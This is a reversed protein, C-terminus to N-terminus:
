DEAEMKALKDYYYLDEKLHDRAIESALKDDLTHEHEVEIGKRVQEAVVSEEVNWQKALEQISDTTVGFVDSNSEEILKGETDVVAEDESSITYKQITLMFDGVSYHKM